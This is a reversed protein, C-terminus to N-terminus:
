YAYSIRKYWVNMSEFDGSINTNNLLRGCYRYGSKSFIINVAYSGARAITYAVKMNRKQMEDEMTHLLYIALGNGQYEPLTAFDTMEVNQSPVDMESSSLAIIEDGRRISFYLVNERMTKQIYRPDHLPFPYTEFIKRFVDAMEFIDSGDCLKVRLEPSLDRTGKKQARALATSLITEMEEDNDEISRSEQLYKGLFYGDETGNYLGPISAEVQFGNQIFTTRAFQPVKAFIKSYGGTEALDDLESIIEPFDTRALKMLYVRDNWKGYQVLSSGMRIIKDKM